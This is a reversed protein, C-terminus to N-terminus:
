GACGRGPRRFPLTAAALDRRMQAFAAARHSLRNKLELPMEAMTQRYSPVFFIPDFGFGGTGRPAEAIVGECTGRWVAVDGVPACLAAVCVFRAARNEAPVGRMRELIAAIRDADSAEPGAFRSSAVGPFGDLADIELGSDDAVAYMGTARAASCAKHVANAEFSSHPESLEPAAPVDVLSPLEIDVGALLRRIERVKGQNGTALLIIDPAKRM